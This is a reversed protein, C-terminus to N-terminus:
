KNSTLENNDKGGTILEDMKELDGDTALIIEDIIKDLSDFNM